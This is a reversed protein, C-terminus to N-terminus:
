QTRDLSLIFHEFSALTRLSVPSCVFTGVVKCPTELQTVDKSFYLYIRVFAEEELSERQLWGM